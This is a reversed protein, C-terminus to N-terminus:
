TGKSRKKVATIVASPHPISVLMQISQSFALGSSSSGLTHWQGIAFCAVSLVM